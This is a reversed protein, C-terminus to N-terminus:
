FGFIERSSSSPKSTEMMVAAMMFGGHTRDVHGSGLVRWCSKGLLSSFWVSCRYLLVFFNSWLLNCVFGKPTVTLVMVESWPHVMSGGRARKFWCWCNVILNDGCLPQLRIKTRLPEAWTTTTGQLIDRDYKLNSRTWKDGDFAKCM